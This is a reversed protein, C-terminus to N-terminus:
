IKLVIMFTFLKSDNLANKLCFLKSYVALYIVVCQTIYQKSEWTQGTFILKLVNNDFFTQIFIFYVYLIAKVEFESTIVEDIFYNKVKQLGLVSKEYDFALELKLQDMESQAEKILSGNIREDFQFYDHSFRISKPLAQNSILVLKFKERLCYLLCRLKEKEKSALYLAKRKEKVIKREELSM